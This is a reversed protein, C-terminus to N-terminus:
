WTIYANSNNILSQLNIYRNYLLARNATLMQPSLHVPPQLFQLARELNIWQLSCEYVTKYRHIRPQLWQIIRGNCLLKNLKLFIIVKNQSVNQGPNTLYRHLVYLQESIIEKSQKQLFCKQQTMASLCTLTASQYSYNVNDVLQSSWDGLWM